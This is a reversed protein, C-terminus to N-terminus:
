KIRQVTLATGGGTSGFTNLSIGSTQTLELEVIDGSTLDMQTVVNQLTQVGTTADQSASAEETSNVLIAAERIGASNNEWQCQGIIVYRGTQDVTIRTNNTVNDHWNADDFFEATLPVLTPTATPIAETSPRAKTGDFASGTV